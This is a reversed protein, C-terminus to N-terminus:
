RKRLAKSVERLQKNSKNDRELLSNLSAKLNKIDRSIQKDPSNRNTRDMEM